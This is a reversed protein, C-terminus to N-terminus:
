EAKIVEHIVSLHYYPDNKTRGKNLLRVMEEALKVENESYEKGHPYERGHEIKFIKYKM